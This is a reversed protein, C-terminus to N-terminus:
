RIDPLDGTRDVDHVVGSSICDVTRVLDYFERTLQNLGGDCLPSEISSIMSATFILPHGRRGNHAAVVIRSPDIRFAEICAAVSDATLNPLDGPCILIGDGARLTQQDQLARVGLRVSDIMETDPDENMVATVTPSWREALQYWIERRTVLFTREIGADGIACLVYELMPKGDVLHLQKVSGFRRSQGAAPIVAYVRSNANQSTM